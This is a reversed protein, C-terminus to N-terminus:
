EWGWEGQHLHQHPAYRFDVWTPPLQPQSSSGQLLKSSPAQLSQVVEVTYTRHGRQKLSLQEKSEMAAGEHMDMTRVGRKEVYGGSGLCDEVEGRLAVVPTPQALCAFMVDLLAELVPVSTTTNGQLGERNSRGQDISTVHDGWKWTSAAQLFM